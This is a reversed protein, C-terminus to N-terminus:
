CKQSYHCTCTLSLDVFNLSQLSIVRATYISVPDTGEIKDTDHLVGQTLLIELFVLPTIIRLNWSLARLLQTECEKVDEIRAGALKSVCARLLEEIPPINKDLEDYKAALSLCTAAILSLQHRPYDNKSLVFDLYAIAIHVTTNSLMLKGGVERTWEVLSM